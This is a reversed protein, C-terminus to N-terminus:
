EARLWAEMGCARCAGCGEGPCAPTQMAARGRERERWLYGRAVGADIVEWPFREARGRERDLFASADGPWAALGQKWGGREAALEILDALSEDGRALLGQLRARGPSDAALSVARFRRVLGRLQKLRRTLAQEPAMPAWQLPTFPKPVLCSASLTIRMLGKGAGAGAEERARAVAALFDALEAYDEDTEGPWGVILYIKLHNVGARACRRVADLFVRADLNKNAVRRLRESAGELALTVTRVGAARLVALLEASLGDARLSSLGFSIRREALWLLFPLLGAWDTLATGVLGVKRPREREVVAQLDELAAHRPPRYVFGAACFRCGHPCGRNVELLLADGFVSRADRFLSCAPSDLRAVARRVPTASKGPVYIGPLNKAADLFGAKSTGSLWADRLALMFPALGAEAEGVFFADV